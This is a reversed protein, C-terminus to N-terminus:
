AMGPAGAAGLARARVQALEIELAVLRERLAASRHREALVSLAVAFLAIGLASAVIWGFALPQDYTHHTLLLTALVAAVLWGAAVGVPRVRRRAEAVPAAAARALLPARVDQQREADTPRPPPLYLAALLEDQVGASSRSCEDCGRVHALLADREPGALTALIGQVRDHETPNSTM